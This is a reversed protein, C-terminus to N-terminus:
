RFAFWFIAVLSVLWIATDVLNGKLIHELSTVLRGGIALLYGFADTIM